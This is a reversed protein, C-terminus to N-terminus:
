PAVTVQGGPSDQKAGDHTSTATVLRVFITGIPASPNVTIQMRIYQTETSPVDSLTYTGAVVAATIDTTGFLGEFFKVTFDSTSGSSSVTFSDTLSSENQVAIDFTRKAGQKANVARTQSAGNTNYVNNGVYCPDSALKIKSDPQYTPTTADGLYRALAFDDSTGTKTRGGVVIKADAQMAVSFATNSASGFDTTVKGGAGFTTDLAGNPRYRALAFFDSTSVHKQGVFVIKGDCQPALSYGYDTGGFDTTM